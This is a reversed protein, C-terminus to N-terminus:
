FSSRIKGDSDRTFGAREALIQGLVRWLQPGGDVLRDCMEARYHPMSTFEPLESLGALSGSQCSLGPSQQRYFSVM